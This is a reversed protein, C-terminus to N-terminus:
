ANYINNYIMYTVYYLKKRCYNVRRREKKREKPKGRRKEKTKCHLAFDDVTCPLRDKLFSHTKPSVGAVAVCVPLYVNRPLGQEDTGKATNDGPLLTLM